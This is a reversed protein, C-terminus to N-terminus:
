TSGSLFCSTLRANSSLEVVNAVEIMGFVCFAVLVLLNSNNDWNLLLDAMVIGYFTEHYRARLLLKWVIDLKQKKDKKAIASRDSHPSANNHNHELKNCFTKYVCLVKRRTDSVIIGHSQIKQIMAQYEDVPGSPCNLVNDPTMLHKLVISLLYGVVVLHMANLKHWVVANQKILM